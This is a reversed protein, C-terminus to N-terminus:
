ENVQWEIIGCEYWILDEELYNADPPGLEGASLELGRLRIDLRLGNTLVPDFSVPNFRDREVTYEAPNSVPLWEGGSRYLVQWSLPVRCYQKDDKWYVSVSSVEERNKFDYQVWARDGSKPRLRMFTSSGDFSNVPMLQDSMAEPHGEGSQSRPYFRRAIDPPDGGPYNDEVSGMGCSSSVRSTSAISPEPPLRLGSDDRALWVSMEGAQRNAWAFYPIAKLTHEEKVIGTGGPGREAALVNGTLFVMSGASDEIFSAELVADDPVQLNMVHGGNDIGELCYVLPGRELAVMGANDLVREHALVKRVPMPMDLEIRDGKEWKRPICVYGKELILDTPEGNVRLEVGPELDSLYRYLDGPMPQNRTWGPIRVHLTFRTPAEPEVLITVKGEWPYRTEQIIQVPRDGPELDVRSGIFLNIYVDEGEWAYMYKGLSALLRALNPPCCNPGFWPHREFGGFSRLPNQYFYEQGDLSVGSLVANYLIRELVDIYRADRHLMFLKHNWFVNGIAACTENWCSLNPLEYAEGFDEHDRYTGVHGALYTKRYVADEWIRDSAAIYDPDGTIAALEALPSYLYTARVTHGVAETQEIVPIHDQAYEGYLKRGGHSHGREDLFFKALELYKEEGTFRYMRLLGIKVEEHQSVELRKGPGFHAHIDDAMRIAANLMPEKGTAQYYAIAAEMFHGASYLEGNLLHKWERPKGGPLYREIMEDIVGDMYRELEPDPNNELIYAGAEILKPSPTRGMEEYTQLMQRFSVKANNELRPGWFEDNIAVSSLPIAQWQPEPNCSLALLLIGCLYFLNLKM